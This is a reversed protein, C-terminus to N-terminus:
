SIAVNDQRTHSTITEPSSSPSDARSAQLRNIARVVRLQLSGTGCGLEVTLGCLNQRVFKLFHRFIIPQRLIASPLM